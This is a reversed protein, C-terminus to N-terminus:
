ARQVQAPAGPKRAAFTLIGYTGRRSQVRSVLPMILHDVLTLPNRAAYRARQWFTDTLGRRALHARYSGPVADSALRKGLLRSLAYRTINLANMQYISADCETAVLDLGVAALYREVTATTFFYLHRPVDEQFLARSALSRFNTVLFVFTGGPRLLRSATAFYAMPDHVHELVAWATIADYRGIGSEIGPLPARHVPFDDIAGAAPSVEVGEVRWGRDRMYRPFDGRACGVDLLLGRSPAFREVIAAEQAYRPRQDSQDFYDFFEPPYFRPMESGTPRPNVFGLGCNACEVVQFREEPHFLIDAREYVPLTRQCGCLNCDVHEM